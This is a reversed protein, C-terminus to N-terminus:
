QVQFDFITFDSPMTTGGTGVVTWYWQDDPMSSWTAADMTMLNFTLNSKEIVADFGFGSTHALILSYTSVGQYTDWKFVPPSDQKDLIMGPTPSTLAVAGSAILKLKNVYKAPLNSSVFTSGILKDDADYAEIGWSLDYKAMMDWTATDLSLGFTMGLFSETFGPTGPTTTSSNGGWPDSTGTSTSAPVLPVEIPISFGNLLDKLELHLSYKAVNAIKTFIFDIKGSTAGYSMVANNKPGLIYIQETPTVSSGGGTGIVNYGQAPETRTNVGDSATIYFEIGPDAFDSGPIEASYHTPASSDKAVMALKVFADDSKATRYYLSVDAIDDGDPDVVIAGITLDSAWAPPTAILDKTAADLSINPSSPVTACQNVAYQTGDPLTVEVDYCANDGTFLASDFSVKYQQMLTTQLSQYISSLDTVSAAATYTGGTQTAIKTLVAESSSGIYGIAITYVPIGLTKAYAIVSDVDKSSYTDDGDTFAIVAKIGPQQATLELAKEIGDYLPTMGDATLPDVASKLLQTDTTFDQVVAVQNVASYAHSGISVVGFQDQTGSSLDIFDKVAVKADDMIGYMSGSQDIVMGVSLGASKSQLLSATFPSVVSNAEKLKFNSEDLGTVFNGAADNVTLYIDVSPFNGMDVQNISLGSTAPSVSGGPVHANHVAWGFHYNDIQNVSDFRFTVTVEDSGYVYSDLPLSLFEWDSLGMAGSSVSNSREWLLDSGVLIQCRDYGPVTETVYKTDLELVPSTLGKVSFTMQLDGATTAGTYYTQSSDDGYYWADTKGDIDAKHWLGSPTGTVASLKVSNYKVLKNSVNPQEEMASVLTGSGFFVVAVFLATVIRYLAKCRM